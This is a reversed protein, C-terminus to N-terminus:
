PRHPSPYQNYVSGFRSPPSALTFYTRKGHATRSINIKSYTKVAFGRGHGGYANGGGCAHAATHVCRHCACPGHKPWWRALAHGRKRSRRVRVNACVNLLTVRIGTYTLSPPYSILRPEPSLLFFFFNVRPPSGRVEPGRDFVRFAGGRTGNSSLDPQIISRNIRPHPRM